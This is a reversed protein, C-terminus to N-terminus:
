KRLILAFSFLIFLFKYLAAFLCNSVVGIGVQVLGIVFLDGLGINKPYPLALHEQIVFSKEVGSAQHYTSHTYM